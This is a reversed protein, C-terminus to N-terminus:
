PWVIEQDRISPRPLLSWLEEPDKITYYTLRHDILPFTIIDESETFFVAWSYIYLAYTLTLATTLSSVNELIIELARKVPELRVELIKSLEKPFLRTRLLDRPLPDKSFILPTLDPEVYLLAEEVRYEKMIKEVAEGYINRIWAQCVYFKWFVDIDVHGSVLRYLNVVGEIIISRPIPSLNYIHAVAVDRAGKLMEKEVWYWGERFEERGEISFTKFFARYSLATLMRIFRLNRDREDVKVFKGLKGM